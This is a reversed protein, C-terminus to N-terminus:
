NKVEIVINQHRWLLFLGNLAVGLFKSVILDQKFGQGDAHFDSVSVTDATM